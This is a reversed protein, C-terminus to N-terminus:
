PSERSVKASCWAEVAAAAEEAAGIREDEEGRGEAVADFVGASAMPDNEEFAGGAPDDFPSAPSVRPRKRYSHGPPGGERGGDGGSGSGGGSSCHNPLTKAMEAREFEIVAEVLRMIQSYVKTKIMSILGKSSLKDVYGLQRCGPHLALVMDFMHSEEGHKEGWRRLGLARYVADRSHERTLRGVVTLESPRKSVRGPLKKTPAASAGLAAGAATSPAAGAATSSAVGAATSSAAGSACTGSSYLRDNLSCRGAGNEMVSAPLFESPDHLELPRSPDLDSSLLMILRLMATPTAPESVSFCTQVVVSLAKILSYIEQLQPHVGCFM